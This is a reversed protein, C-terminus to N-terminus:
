HQLRPPPGQIHQLHEQKLKLQQREKQKQEIQGQVKQLQQQLQQLKAQQVGQVRFAPSQQQTAKDAGPKNSSLEQQKQNLEQQLEKEENMLQTIEKVLSQIQEAYGNISTPVQGQIQPNTTVPEIGPTAVGGPQANAKLSLNAMLLIALVRVILSVKKRM